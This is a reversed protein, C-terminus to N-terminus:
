GYFGSSVLFLAILLAVTTIGDALSSEIPIVFNDPDLGRRFTLIAVYFSASVIVIVAILNTTILLASFRLFVQVTLMGQTLLSIVSFLIFMIISAIWTAVIRKRHNLISRFSPKLLGVALKTTATSGIVSGADGVTDILAPYVIYIEKASSVIKDVGKLVTGTVNVIFAVFFLTLLSEKITKIFSKNKICRPLFVLALTVLLLGLSVAICRGILGFLFFLSLTFVYSLTIIIDAMTSMIPYVVVDTDLGRKFSTFSFIITFLSNMLGLFMTALVVILIDFFNHFTIGWFLSGVAISFCSMIISTELTLVIVSKFLLYFEYTNGRFRPFITGLHLATSLRGSFLGSVVGRATLIAPYIAVAWPSLQFVNFQSAVIFGALIGGVNFSLAILSEKLFGLPIADKSFYRWINALKM